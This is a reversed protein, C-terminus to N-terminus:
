GALQGVGPVQVHCIGLNRRGRFEMDVVGHDDPRAMAVHLHEATGVDTRRGMERGQRPLQPCTDSDLDAIFHRRIMDNGGSGHAPVSGVYGLGAIKDKDIHIGKKDLAALIILFLFRSRDDDRPQAVALTGRALMGGETRGVQTYPRHDGFADLADM